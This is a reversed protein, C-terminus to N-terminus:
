MMKIFASASFTICQTYNKNKIKIKKIGTKTTLDLSRILQSYMCLFDIIDSTAASDFRWASEAPNEEDLDCKKALKKLEDWHWVYALTYAYMNYASHPALSRYPWHQAFMRCNCSPYAYGAQPWDRRLLRRALVGRGRRALKTRLKERSEVAVTERLKGPHNDPTHPISERTPRREFNTLQGFNSRDFTLTDRRDHIKTRRESSENGTSARDKLYNNIRNKLETYQWM